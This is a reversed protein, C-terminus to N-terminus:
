SVLRQPNVAGGREAAFEAPTRNGLASHLRTENYDRRYEEIGERAEQISRWWHSNLCEDRMRGNFSECVSNQIPKGPTIFDLTVRHEYAWADLAMSRFEPGNDCTIRAPYGRDLAIEELARIVRSSPLSTDVESALAERSLTDVVNLVRYTRGGSLVDSMFDMAWCDNLRQPAPMPRRVVAVRKRTRRRVALSEERYLRYIRKHNAVVGERMLLLHLRRYGWRV